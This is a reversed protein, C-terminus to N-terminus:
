EILREKILKALAVARQDAYDVVSASTVVDLGLKSGSFEAPPTNGNSLTYFLVIRPDAANKEIFGTVHNDLRSYKITAIILVAQYGDAYIRATRPKRCRM